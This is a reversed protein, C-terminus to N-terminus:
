QAAPQENERSGKTKAQEQSKINISGNHTQLYLKGEGAGIIGTLKARSLKGTVTIPIDTKISGNHTSVDVIASFNPPATFEVGGNHTVASVDCVPQASESYFLKVSGNHTKVQADGSVDKCTISGNHTQLKINGSAQTATVGGNHTTANLDGTINAIKVAGNHTILGLNTKNPLIAKLSVNVSRNILPTPKEIKVILKSGETELKVNTEEAVKQADEVTLAHAVIKAILNCDAVEAGDITISGNHTAAEFTSGAQLPASLRVVREYRAQLPCGGLNISCGIILISLGLLCVLSVKKLYGKNM